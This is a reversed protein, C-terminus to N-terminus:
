AAARQPTPLALRERILASITVGQRRALDELHRREDDALRVGVSGKMRDNFRM